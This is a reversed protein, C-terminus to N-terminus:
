RPAQAGRSGPTDRMWADVLTYTTALIVPGLFIGLIGFAMLGGIVGALILVLPLDAGRRILVPRLFGDLTLALVTFVLLVTGWLTQGSYYLWIVAPILVLAPGIQILCLLFMLATLMGAYPMGAIALGIGGLASQAIATVMVALAVGRIAKGALIVAMEGRDGGLRRGFQVATAAAKEGGSYMFAAVAATLVFQIFMSGVNGAASAFWQAVSGAYPALRPGLSSVGSAAVRTWAVGIREGILPVRALWEPPQPLRMSLAAHVLETIQDLNAVITSIALWFPAILIILLALTMVFVAPGRRNGLHRQVWLLLPWTAIVLTMAWLIAPLFPQMVLFSAGMLGGIFLVTLTIRTLDTQV